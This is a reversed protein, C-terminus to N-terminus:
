LPQLFTTILPRLFKCPLAGLVRVEPAPERQVRHFPDSPIGYGVEFGLCPHLPKLIGRDKVHPSNQIPFSWCCGLKYKQRERYLVFQGWAACKVKHIYSTGPHSALVLGNGISLFRSSNGKVKLNTVISQRKDRIAVM